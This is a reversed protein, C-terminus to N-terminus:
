NLTIELKPGILEHLPRNKIIIFCAAGAGPGPIGEGKSDGILRKEEADM